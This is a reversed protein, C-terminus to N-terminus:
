GFYNALVGAGRQPGGRIQWGKMRARGTIRRIWVMGNPTNAQSDRQWGAGKGDPTSAKLCLGTLTPKFRLNVPWCRARIFGAREWGQLTLAPSVPHCLLPSPTDLCQRLHGTERGNPSPSPNIRARQQGTFRRNLGVRVPSQRLAEVGSPFPAPHCLSECAV